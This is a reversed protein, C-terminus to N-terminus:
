ENRVRKRAIAFKNADHQQQVDRAMSKLMAVIEMGEDIEDDHVDGDLDFYKIINTAAETADTALKLSTILNDITFVDKSEMDKIFAKNLAVILLM